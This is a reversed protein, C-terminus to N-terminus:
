RKWMYRWYYVDFYEKVRKELRKERDAPFSDVIEMVYHFLEDILKQLPPGALKRVLSINKLNDGVFLNWKKREYNRWVYWLIWVRSEWPFKKVFEDYARGFYNRMLIELWEELIEETFGLLPDAWRPEKKKVM